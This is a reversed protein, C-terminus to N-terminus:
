IGISTLYTDVYDTVIYQDNQDLHTNDPQNLVFPSMDLVPIDMQRVLRNGRTWADLVSGSQGKVPFVTRVVAMKGAARMLSAIQKVMVLNADIISDNFGGGNVSFPQIIVLDGVSDINNTCLDLYRGLFFAATKGEYAHNAYTWALGAMQRRSVVEALWSSNFPKFDPDGRTGVALEMGTSDGLGDVTKTDTRGLPRIEISVIPAYESRLTGNPMASQNTTVFNGNAHNAWYRMKPYRANLFNEWDSVLRAGSGVQGAVNAAFLIRAYIAGDEPVDLEFWPSFGRGVKGNTLYDADAQAVTFTGNQWAANTGAGTGLKPNVEEGNRGASMGFSSITVPGATNGLEVVVRAEVKGKVWSAVRENFSVNSGTTGFVSVNTLRFRARNGTLRSVAPYGSPALLVENGPRGTYISVPKPNSHFDFSSSKTGSRVRLQSAVGYPGFVRGTTKEDIKFSDYPSGPAGSLLDVYADEGTVKIAENPGLNVIQSQSKAVFPM